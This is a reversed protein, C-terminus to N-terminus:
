PEPLASVQVALDAGTTPSHNLAVSITNDNGNVLIVDLLHDNNLDATALSVPGSGTDFSIQSPFTGDGKGLSVTFGQVDGHSATEILTAQLLSHPMSMSNSQRNFRVM